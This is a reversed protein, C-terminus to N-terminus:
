LSPSPSARTHGRAAAALRPARKTVGHHPHPWVRVESLQLEERGAKTENSKLFADFYNGYQEEPIDCKPPADSADSM